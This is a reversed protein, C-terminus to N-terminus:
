YVTHESGPVTSPLHEVCSLLIAQAPHADRAIGQGQMDMCMDAATHGPGPNLRHM